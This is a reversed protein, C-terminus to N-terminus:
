RSYYNVRCQNRKRYLPSCISSILYTASRLADAALLPIFAMNPEQLGSIWVCAMAILGVFNAIQYCFVLINTGKTWIFFPVILCLPNLWLLLWNPSAPEHVSWFVLFTILCGALGFLLYMVFDFGKSLKHRFIDFWSLLLTIGFVVWCWFIPGLYWPTPGDAVGEAPGDAVTLTEKVLPKGGPLKANAAMQALAVPAFAIERRGIETDLDSGLALDIGFQYWPYNRHYWRMNNRFTADVAVEAAPEALTITDGIARELIALPRTACNDRIYNYRYVRNQPKLNDAVLAVVREAQELTLNLVQETVRRGQREYPMLFYKYPETGLMYDTEGKVFRYIFGPSAFDFLGWNAVEDVNGRQLRLGSHGELEYIIRGPSVTLLSVRWAMSDTAASDTKAAPKIQAMGPLLAALLWITLIIRQM